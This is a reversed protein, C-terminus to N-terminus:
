EGIFFSMTLMTIIIIIMMVILIRSKSIDLKKNKNLFSNTYFM